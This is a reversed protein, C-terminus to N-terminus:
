GVVWFSEDRLAIHAPKGIVLDLNRFAYNPIFIEVPIKGHMTELHVVQYRRRDLISIIIGEFINHRLSEKVPKGKRIIMVEEPRVFLDMEDKGGATDRLHAMPLSLHLGNVSLTVRKSHDDRKVVEARYINNAGLFLAVKKSAPRLFIENKDGVQEVAGYMFVTIRDSLFYAEEFDHTVCLVTPHFTTHLVKLVEQIEAKISPDLGSLPEDVLLLKPRPALARLLAVRKKEGGSLNAPFRELLPAVKMQHILRSVYEEYNKPDLRRAKIGYLINERVNLHPFLALDQPVYSIERQEPPLSQVEKEGIRIKGQVAKRLGIISELISTKGCGTPGLLSHFEGEQIEINLGLIRFTGAVIDLGEIKIM